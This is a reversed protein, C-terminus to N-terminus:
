VSEKDRRIIIGSMFRNNFFREISLLESDNCGIVLKIETDKKTIDVTCVIASLRHNNLTGRCIDIGDGDGSSTGQLYGYDFPYEIEPYRPHHSGKPRDIVMEHTEILRDLKNWFDM